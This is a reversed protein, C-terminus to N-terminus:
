MESLSAQPDGVKGLASVLNKVAFIIPEYDDGDLHFHSDGVGGEGVLHTSITIKEGLDEPPYRVTMTVKKGVKKGGSLDAAVLGTLLLFFFVSLLTLHYLRAM